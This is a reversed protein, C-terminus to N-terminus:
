KDKMWTFFGRINGGVLTKECDKIDDSWTLERIYKEVDEDTPLLGGKARCLVRGKWEEIVTWLDLWDEKSITMDKPIQSM